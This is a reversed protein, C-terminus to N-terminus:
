NILTTSIALAYDSIKGPSFLELVSCDPDQWNVRVKSGWRRAGAGAGAGAGARSGSGLEM